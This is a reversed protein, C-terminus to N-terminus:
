RTEREPRWTRIWELDACGRVSAAHEECAGWRRDDGHLSIEYRAPRPCEPASATGSCMGVEVRDEEAGAAVADIM